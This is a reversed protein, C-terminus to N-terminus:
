VKADEAEKSAASVDKALALLHQKEKGLTLVSSICVVRELHLGMQAAMFRGIRCLGLYNGYARDVAYQLMYYGTVTLSNKSPAFSLQQLCPFGQYPQDTHDSAPDYISAQFASRRKLGGKYTRVIEDLQNVTKKESERYDILRQFYSGNANLRSRQQLRPWIARFRRYLDKGGDSLAPNWLSEPFLTSAVDDVSRGTLVELEKDLRQRVGLLEIPKSQEDFERISVVVPGLEQVGRQMLADFVECWALSLNQSNPVYVSNRL